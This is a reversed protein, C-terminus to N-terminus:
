IVELVLGPVGNTDSYVYMVISPPPLRDAGFPGPLVYGFLSYAILVWVLIAIALGATKRMAEMLLLIAVIGPVYKSPTYGSIDIVWANYNLSMWLWSAIAAFGLVAELVT